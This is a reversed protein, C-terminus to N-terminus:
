QGGRISKSGDDKSVRRGGGEQQVPIHRWHCPMQLSKKFGTVRTSVSATPSAKIFVRLTSVHLLAANSYLPSACFCIQRIKDQRTQSHSTRDQTANRQTTNHQTTNHQTTNDQWTKHQTASHHTHTHTRAHLCVYICVKRVWTQAM